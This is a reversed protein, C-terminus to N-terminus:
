YYISKYMNMSVHLKLLDKEQNLLQSKLGDKPYNLNFKGLSHVQKLLIIYM